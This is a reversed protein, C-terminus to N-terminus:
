ESEIKLFKKAEADKKLLPQRVMLSLKNQLKDEEKKISAKYEEWNKPNHNKKNQYDAHKKNILKFHKKWLLKIKKLTEM